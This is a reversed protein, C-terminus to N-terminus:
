GPKRYNKSLIFYLLDPFYRSLLSTLIGLLSHRDTHKKNRIQNLLKIATTERSATFRKSRIPTNIWQGEPTMMKKDDENKTFSVYGIGVFVHSTKLEARLSQALATLSMKSLSYASYRPLGYLGAISSVFLIDGHSKKLEPIAAMVPFLCGYINTDIVQRAVEPKMIEVEGFCSLAANNVIIDLKGFRDITKKILNINSANDTVDGVHILIKGTYIKFEDLVANLRAANRATMVVKGGHILVQRALEKGIGMSSGTIIVVKDKYYNSLNM